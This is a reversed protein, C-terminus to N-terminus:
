RRLGRLVNLDVELDRGWCGRKEVEAMLAAFEESSRGISSNEFGRYEGKNAIGSKLASLRHTAPAWALLEDPLIEYSKWM